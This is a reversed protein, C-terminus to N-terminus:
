EKRRYLRHARIYREVADPVQYRVSRGQRVQRRIEHSAFPLAYASVRRARRRLRAPLSDWPVGPREVSLFSAAAWLEDSRKWAPLERLSDSGLIFFLEDRPWQRHFHALTEVTYIRRNQRLEWDSVAFAANGRVARRLMALRHRGATLPAPKHPPEASPLFVVQDLRMQQCASEAMLLHGFHVPNFTGGFLALKRGARRSM